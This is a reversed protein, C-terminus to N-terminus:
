APDDSNAKPPWPNFNVDDQDAWRELADAAEQPTCRLPALDPSFVPMMWQIHFISETDIGFFELAKDQINTWNGDNNHPTVGALQAAYGGICCVSGCNTTKAQESPALREQDYEDLISVEHLSYHMTFIAEPAGARLWDIVRQVNERNM